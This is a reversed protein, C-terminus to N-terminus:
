NYNDVHTVALEGPRIKLQLETPSITSASQPAASIARVTPGAWVGAAFGLVATIVVAVAIKLMNAEMQDTSGFRRSTSSTIAARVRM